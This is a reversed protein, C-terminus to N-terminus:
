KKNILLIKVNDEFQVEIKTPDIKKTIYGIGFSPHRIISSVKYNQTMKYDLVLDPDFNETLENWKKSSSITKKIVTKKAKEPKMAATEAIKLSKPKRYNHSAKCTTCMVKSIEDGEMALIVHSSDDKCKGCYSLVEKGAENKESRRIM